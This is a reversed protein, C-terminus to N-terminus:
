EPLGIVELNSVIISIALGSVMGSQRQGLNRVDYVNLPLEVNAHFYTFKSFSFFRALRSVSRSLSRGASLISLSIWKM